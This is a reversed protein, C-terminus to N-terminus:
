DQSPRPTQHRAHRRRRWYFFLCIAGVVAALLVLEIVAEAFGASVAGLGGAGTVLVNSLLGYIALALVPAIFVAVRKTRATM